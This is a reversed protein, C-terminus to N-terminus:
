LTLQRNECDKIYNLTRQYDEMDGQELFFNAAKQFDDMAGRQDGLIYRAMARYSYAPAFNPAFRLSQNFLEIASKADKSMLM